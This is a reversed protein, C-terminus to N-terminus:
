AKPRFVGICAIIAGLPVTFFSVIVALTGFTILDSIDFGILRCGAAPGSSGGISCGPIISGLGLVLVALLPFLGALILGFKTM